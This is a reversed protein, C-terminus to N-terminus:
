ISRLRFSPQILITFFPLSNKHCDHFFVRPGRTMADFSSLSVSTVNDINRIIEDRNVDTNISGNSSNVVMSSKMRKWLRFRM